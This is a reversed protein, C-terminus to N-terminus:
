RHPATGYQKAFHAAVQAKVKANDPHKENWYAEGKMLAEVDAASAGGGAGAPPRDEDFNSELGVRAAFAIFDPDTGFKEELRKFSGPQDDAVGKAFETTARRAKDLNGDFTAKDAWVSSLEKSAEDVTLAKNAALLEPATRLYREMFFQMHENPIGAAHADKAIAKFMPDAMFEAMDIGEMPKGDEGMPATLTYGEPSEPAKLVPGKHAELARYSEALKRASAAEDFEGADNTVRFKEPLWDNEGTAATTAAQPTLLSGGGEGGAATAAAAPDPAGTAGAADDGSSQMMSM